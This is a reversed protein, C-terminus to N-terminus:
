KKVVRLIETTSDCVLRLLYIGSPLDMRLSLKEERKNVPVKRVLRGEMDIWEYYLVNKTSSFRVTAMEDVPNPIVISSPENASHDTVSIFSTGGVQVVPEIFLSTPQNYYPHNEEFSHWGSADKFFATNRGDLKMDTHCLAFQNTPSAVLKIGVFFTSDVKLPQELRYYCDRMSMKTVKVEEFQTSRRPLSTNTLSVIEQSLVNEPVSNGSYIRLLLTDKESYNGQWPALYVGYLISSKEALHFREAYEVIGKKNHGAAFQEYDSVQHITEGENWNTVRTCPNPDTERGEQKTRGSGTPDLCKNLGKNWVKSFAWFADYGPRSCSEKTDGGSLAGVMHDEADFLGAGSSGGEMIGMEWQDVIWHTNEDFLDDMEFTSIYPTNEEISIKRVDSSPHHFSYAGPGGLESTANWGAYYVRYDIPPQKRLRMVMADSSVNSFVVDAGSVSMELSGNIDTFCHPREFNFFFVSRQAMSEDITGMEKYLCHAATVLLPAGDDATNNVMNGSCYETGAVIITVSSRAQQEHLGVCSADEQCFQSSGAQPLYKLGRYDHNVSGIRLRSTSEKPTILEVVVEDGPVPATALVGHSSNNESTFSGRITSRDPTYIFLQSSDDLQYEEFILNLSYAGKSVIRLRWVDRGDKLRYHVGSNNPTYDVEFAYAFRLGGINNGELSDERRMEEVDFAPMRVVESGKRLCPGADLTEPLPMRGHSIQAQAGMSLAFLAIYTIKKFLRM